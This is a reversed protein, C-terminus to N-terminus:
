LRESAPAPTLDGNGAVHFRQGRWVVGGRGALASLYIGFALLDRVPLALYPQRPLGFRWEIAFCQLLRLAIAAGVLPAGEPNGLMAALVALGLPHTIVSGANGWRDIARITHARRSQTHLLERTSRELCVHGVSRECIAVELGAARVSAGIAYDDYLTDAFDALGGIRELTSRRLAITAGFCPSGMRLRLASIVNPLFDLNISMASLSAWLGGGGVGYYLCSVAGVRPAELEGVLHSLYHADVQIDSDLMVLTDYEALRAMNVLNSVKRNLGHLRPNVELDIRGEPFDRAIEQVIAVAPDAASAVGCVIQVPADYDQRCLAALRDYLGQEAGCLPVLVSVPTPSATPGSANPRRLLALLNLALYILGALAALAFLDGGWALGQRILDVTM